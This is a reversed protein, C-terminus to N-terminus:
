RAAEGAAAAEAAAAAAAGAGLDGGAERALDIAAARPAAAVDNGSSEAQPAATIGAPRSGAPETCACLTLVLAMVAVRLSLSSTRIM